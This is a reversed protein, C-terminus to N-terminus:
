SKADKSGGKKKTKSKKSLIKSIYSQDIGLAVAIKEQSVNEDTKKLLSLILLKKIATLESLIKKNLDIM